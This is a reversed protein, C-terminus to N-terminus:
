VERMLSKPLKVAVMEDTLELGNGNSMDDFVFFLLQVSGLGLVSPFEKGINQYTTRKGRGTDVELVVIRNRDGDLFSGAFYLAAANGYADTFRERNRSGMPIRDGVYVKVTQFEQGREDTRKGM